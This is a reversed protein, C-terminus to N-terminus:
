LANGDLSFVETLRVSLQGSAADAVEELEGKAILRDGIFLEVPDDIARDLTLMADPALSLLDALRPHARGVSILIEIPVEAFPQTDDSM